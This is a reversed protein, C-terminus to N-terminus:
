DFFLDNSGSKLFMSKDKWLLDGTLGEPLQVEGKLGNTNQKKLEVIIQGKPHPMSGKLWNLKGMAPQIKVTKFGPQAPEIGCVIALLDYCPTASWAHCDSRTGVVSRNGIPNEPFTTLGFQLATSWPELQDLYLDGMGAKKLARFLYFRFYLTCQTLGPNTLINQMIIKQYDQPATDTLIALINVHQSFNVKEPTDAYLGCSSVYCNARVANQINLAIQTYEAAEKTKGFYKFLEAARQLAYVYQLSLIASHGLDVGPPVGWPWKNAWDVFQFWEIGALLNNSELFRYFYDLVARMGPLFQRVFETDNVLMYYDHVMAIWWLSFPPIFQDVNSPYRSLTIGDSIRSNDFLELANRILRDDGSNYLSILAQIRTDGIYQLQEYYPCDYYTEQACLRATRWGTKWITEITMDECEFTARQCFPYATFLNAFSTITLPQSTTEIDLQAYRFTRLWLPEFVRNDGGDPKFIDYIGEANKGAIDDRHGKQGSSDFLAECYTIKIFSGKGASVKLQPYGMTLVTRDLLISVKSQPPIVLNAGGTIFGDDAEIGSTRVVKNLYEYKEEMLPITRPTLYWGEGHMYGRGVGRLMVKPKLWKSDDYEIKEWDWPYKDGQICDGPSVAYFGHTISETIPIPSYAYNKIVKWDEGTNVFFQKKEDAQLIFATRYSHQAVPKNEGFNFVLAAIVNKGRKLFTSIDVTEYRWFLRDGRAPGNCVYQGNVYLRYRNDASVHIKMSEPVEGLEFSKRFHFIGYNLPSATPHSIWTAIWAHKLNEWEINVVSSTEQAILISSIFLCLLFVLEIKKLTYTGKRSLRRYIRSM